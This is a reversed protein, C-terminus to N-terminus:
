LVDKQYKSWMLGKWTISVITSRHVRVFAPSVPSAMSQIRSTYYIKLTYILVSVIKFKKIVKSSILRQQVCCGITTMIHLLRRSLVPTVGIKKMRLFYLPLKSQQKLISLRIKRQLYYNGVLYITCLIATSFNCCFGKNATCILPCASDYTLM